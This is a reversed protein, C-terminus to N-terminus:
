QDQRPPLIWGQNPAQCLLPKMFGTTQVRSHRPFLASSPWGHNRFSPDPSNPLPRGPGVRLELHCCSWCCGLSAGAQSGSALLVSGLTRASPSCGERACVWAAALGSLCLGVLLRSLRLGLWCGVQACVWGAALGSPCLGVGCGVQACVWGAALGSPCLGAHGLSQRERWPRGDTSSWPSGLSFPAPGGDGSSAPPVRAQTSLGRAVVSTQGLLAQM